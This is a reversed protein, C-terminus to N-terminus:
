FCLALFGVFNDVIGFFNDFLELLLDAFVRAVVLARSDTFGSWQEFAVVM